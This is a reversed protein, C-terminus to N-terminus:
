AGVLTRSGAIARWTDKGESLGRGRKRCDDNEEEVEQGGGRTGLVVEVTSLARVMGGVYTAAARCVSSCFTEIAVPTPPPGAKTILM